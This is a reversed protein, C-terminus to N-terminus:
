APRGSRRRCGRGSRRWCRIAVVHQDIRAQAVALEARGDVAPLAEEHARVRDPIVTALRVPARGSRTTASLPDLWTDIRSLWDVAAAAAMENTGPRPQIRRRSRVPRWPRRGKVEPPGDLRATLLQAPRVLDGQERADAAPEEVVLIGLGEGDAGIGSREEDAVEVALGVQHRDIGPRVVQGSIESKMPESGTM